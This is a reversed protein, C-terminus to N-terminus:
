ERRAFSSALAFTKKITKNELFVLNCELLIRVARKNVTDGLMCQVPPPRSRPPTGPGPPDAGPPDAGPPLTVPGPPPNAGPPYRTQPIDAGHLAGPLTDWCASLCVGWSSFSQCVPTFVYGECAENAPLLLKLVNTRKTPAM